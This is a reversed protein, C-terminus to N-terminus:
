LTKPQSTAAKAQLTVSLSEAAESVSVLPATKEQVCALFHKIEDIYTQNVDYRPAEFLTHYSQHEKDFRRLLVHEPNSGKSEWLLIGTSGTVETERITEIGLLDARVEGIAGSVFRLLVAAYDEVDTELNSAHGMLASVQEVNGGWWLTYDIEQIDDILASGKLEANSSESDQHGPDSQGQFFKQSSRTRFLWPTGISGQAIEQHIRAVAPHFRMNYGVQVISSTREVAELFEPVGEWRDALPKEIFLHVGQALLHQAQALHFQAPTCIFAIEPEWALASQYSDLTLADYEVNARRRAARDSDHVAIDRIGLSLLNRMHRLGICSAGLILVRM